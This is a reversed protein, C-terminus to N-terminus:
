GFFKKMAASVWGGKGINKVYPSYDKDDRKIHNELWVKLDGMLARTVDDGRKFREHYNNVRKTFNVHVQKHTDIFPYSGHEMMNEEFSFHNITYEVLQEIVFRVEDHDHNRMADDLMNIYDVIQRHQADIVPVGIELSSDWDWYAM